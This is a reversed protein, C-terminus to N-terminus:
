NYTDPSERCAKWAEKLAPGKLHKPDIKERCTGNIYNRNAAVRSGGAQAPSWAAFLIAVSALAIIGKM